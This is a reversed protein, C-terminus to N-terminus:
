IWMSCGGDNIVRCDIYSRVLDRSLEVQRCIDKSAPM